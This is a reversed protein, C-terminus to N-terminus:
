EATGRFFKKYHFVVISLAAIGRLADISHFTETGGPINRILIRQVRTPASVHVFNM